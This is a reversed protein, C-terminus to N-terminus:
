RPLMARPTSGDTVPALEICSPVSFHDNDAHTVLVADVRPVDSSRAPLEILLPMDFGGLVPDVMLLTGRSNILFGAMGLWYLTTGDSSDDFAPSGIARTQPAVAQGHASVRISQRDSM